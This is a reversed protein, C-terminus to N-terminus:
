EEDEHDRNRNIEIFKHLSDILRIGNHDLNETIYCCQNEFGGKGGCLSYMLRGWTNLMKAQRSGSVDALILGTTEPHFPIENM